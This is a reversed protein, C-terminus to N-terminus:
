AEPRRDMVGTSSTEFNYVFSLVCFIGGNGYFEVYTDQRNNVVESGCDTPSYYLATNTRPEM